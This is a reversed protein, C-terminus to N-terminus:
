QPPQYVPAQESPAAEPPQEPAAGEPAPPLQDQSVSPAGPLAPGAQAMMLGQSSAAAMYSAATIHDWSVSPMIKRMNRVTKIRKAAKDRKAKIVLMTILVLLAIAAVAGLLYPMNGETMRFVSIDRPERMIPPHVRPDNPLTGNVYEQMNTFGDGDPDKDADKVFPDTGFAIEWWDPMGDGDTDLNDRRIDVPRPHMTLTFVETVEMQGSRAKITIAYQGAPFKDTTIYASDGFVELGSEGSRYWSIQVTEGDPDYSPTADFIIVQNEYYIEDPSPSVRVIRPFTNVRVNYLPSQSIINGALDRSRVQIFNQDGRAFDQRIRVEVRNPNGSADKYPMWPGFKVRGSTSVRYEITSFDVGSQPDDIQVKVEVNPTPEYESEVPSLLRYTPPSADIWVNYAGSEAYGNGAVDKARFRIWNDKGNRFWGTVVIYMSNDPTYTEQLPEWEGILGVEGETSVEYEITLPDVGTNTDNVWISCAPRLSTIWESSLPYFGEFYVPTMDIRVRTFVDSGTNGVADEAWMYINNIGEPLNTLRYANTGKPVMFVQSPIATRKPRNVSIYYYAVGSSADVADTWTIYVEPDDDYDRPDQELSDAYIRLDGPIGPLDSDIRVLFEAKYEIPTLDQSATVNDFILKYIMQPYAADVVVHLDLDSNESFYKIGAQDQVGIRIFDPPTVEDGLGLYERHVGTFHLIEDGQVWGGNRIQRGRPDEVLMSGAMRVRSEVKFAGEIRDITGAVGTGKLELRVDVPDYNSWWLNFDFEFHLSANTERNEEDLTITSTEESLVMLRGPDNLKSFRGMPFDYRLVVNAGDSKSDIVVDLTTLYGLSRESYVDVDLTHFKSGMGATAPYTKGDPGYGESFQPEMIDTKFQKYLVATGDPVNTRRAYQLGGSNDTNSMGMLGMMNNSYSSSQATYLDKHQTLIRGDEYLIVQFDVDRGTHTGSFYTVARYWQVIFYNDGNQDVGAQTFIGAGQYNGGAAAHSGEPIGLGYASYVYVTDPTHYFSKYPIDYNYDYFYGFYYTSTSMCQAFGIKGSTSIYLTKQAIGYYYFDFPLTISGYSFYRINSSTYGWTYASFLTGTTSIDQYNYTVKPEPNHNDIWTYGAADSTPSTKAEVSIDEDNLLPISTFLMGFAILLTIALGMGKYNVRM